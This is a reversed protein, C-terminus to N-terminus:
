TVLMPIVVNKVMGVRLLHSPYDCSGLIHHVSGAIEIEKNALYSLTFSTIIDRRQRDLPLGPGYVNHVRFILYSMGDNNHNNTQQNLRLHAEISLLTTATLTSPEIGCNENCNDQNSKYVQTSSILVMCTVHQHQQSVTILTISAEQQYMAPNRGLPPSLAFEPIHFVYTFPGHEEFIRQLWQRDHIDGRIFLIHDPVNHLAGPWSLTDIGVVIMGGSTSPQYARAIAAGIMSAVGTILVRTDPALEIPEKVAATSPSSSTDSGGYNNLIIECPLSTVSSSSFFSSTGDNNNRLPTWIYRDYRFSALFSIIMCILLATTLRFRNCQVPLSEM